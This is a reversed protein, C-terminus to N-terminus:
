FASTYGPINESLFDVTKRGLGALGKLEIQMFVGTQFDDDFNVNNTFNDVGAIFRRGVLRMSWCCSDYEVGALLDLSEREKIAYSWRGVASWQGNLPWRFSIDTQEINLTNNSLSTGLDNRRVRYAANIVKQSSPRYQASIALKRTVSNNFDWQYEGRLSFSDTLQTSLLAVFPSLTDTQTLQGPFQVKRDELYVIQALDLQGIEKGENSILRSTFALTVQNADGFRDAGVFRNESFMSYYTFDYLTSDFIPLDSQDEEPVYLYYARPEFTHTYGTDFLTVDKEFYAGTDLSFFPVFRDPTDDNGTVTRDLDYKTYRLGVKPKIYTGVSEIPYSLSPTIDVRNGEVRNNDSIDFYTFESKLNYNITRNKTDSFANFNIQPLRTYQSTTVTQDSLQYDQVRASANWHNGGYSIDAKRELYITSTIDISEGFDQFYRSDSVNNFLVDLNGQRAFTQQHEFTIFSRDKDNLASDSPLYEINLKGAGSGLLYRYEGLAMVGTDTLLRPTLTADMSPSINWYFPAQVEFGNRNTSGYSPALFGSKRDSNLPFSMYPTYFIPVDKIKLVVHKGTGRGKEHDLTMEKATLKWANSDMDSGEREPDCSTYDINKGNTEKDVEHYLEDAHGRGRTSKIKYEANTFTGSDTKQDIFASDGQVYYEEDWYQVNGSLNGTEESQDYELVDARTQMSDKAIEVNGRMLALGDVAINAEDASLYIEGPELEEDITPQPPIDLPAACQNWNWQRGGSQALSLPSILLISVISLCFILQKYIM